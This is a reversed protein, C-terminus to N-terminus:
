CDPASCSRALEGQTAAICTRADAICTWWKGSAEAAQVEKVLYFGGSEKKPSQTKLDTEGNQKVMSMHDMCRHRGHGQSRLIRV